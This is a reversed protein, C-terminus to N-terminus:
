FSSSSLWFSIAMFTILWFRIRYLLLKKFFSILLFKRIDEDADFDAIMDIQNGICAVDTRFVDVIADVQDAHDLLASFVFLCM